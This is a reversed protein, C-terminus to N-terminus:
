HITGITWGQAAVDATADLALTGGDAALSKAPQFTSVLRWIGTTIPTISWRQGSYNGTAAMEPEFVGDNAVDLSQSSGRYRDTLRFTGDGNSAIQWYQGSYNGTPRLAGDDLSTQGGLAVNELRFWANSSFAPRPCASPLHVSHLKDDLIAYLTPDYAALQARTNIDNPDYMQHVGLYDQVGEAWYEEPNTSAYLGQYKGAAIAADFADKVRQQFTPDVVEFGAIELAHGFEHVLINEGRAGDREYCLINEEAAFANPRPGPNFLGRARANLWDPQGREEPLDTTNESSGLVMVYLRASIMASRVDAHPALMADVIRAAQKLAADPVSASAVVPIGGASCYKAYYPDLGLASPVATVPYAAAGDAKDNTGDVFQWDDSQPPTTCAALALIPAALMAITM